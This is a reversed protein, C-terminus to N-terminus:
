LKDKLKELVFCKVKKALSISENTEEISYECFFNNDPYRIAVAFPNLIDAINRLSEFSRDIQACLDLLEHIDHVKEFEVEYFVLFGKLYKEACQQSHFCVTDTPPSSLKMIAEASVLDNEAKRFWENVLQIKKNM